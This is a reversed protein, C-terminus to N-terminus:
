FSVETNRKQQLIAEAFLVGSLFDRLQFGLLELYAKKSNSLQFIIRYVCDEEPNEGQFTGVDVASCSIILNHAIAKEILEPISDCLKLGPLDEELKTSGPFQVIKGM